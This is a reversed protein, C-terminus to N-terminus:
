SRDSRLSTVFGSQQLDRTFIQRMLFIICARLSLYMVLVMGLILIVRVIQLRVPMKKEKSNVQCLDSIFSNFMLICVLTLFYVFFNSVRVMVFGLDSTDGRFMYAYRDFILLLGASIDMLILSAKRKPSITKLFLMFVALNACVASLALMINLQHNALVEFIM